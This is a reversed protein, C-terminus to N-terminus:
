CFFLVFRDDTEPASYPALPLRLYNNTTTLEIYESLNTTRLCPQFDEQNGM